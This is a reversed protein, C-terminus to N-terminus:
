LDGEAIANAVVTPFWRWSKPVQIKSRAELFDPLVADVAALDAYRGCEANLKATRKVSVASPKGPMGVREGLAEFLEAIEPVLVAEFDREGTEPEPDPLPSPRSALDGATTTTTKPQGNKSGNTTTTTLLSSSSSTHARARPSHDIKAEAFARPPVEDNTSKQKLLVSQKKVEAGKTGAVQRIQRTYEDRVMRRNFFVGQPNVSFVAALTLEQLHRRAHNLTDGSLRLIRQETWPTGDSNVLKGREPSLAMHCLMMMWLGRAGDSLPQLDRMLDNWYVQTAPSKQTSDLGDNLRKM